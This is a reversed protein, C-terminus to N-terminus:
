EGEKTFQIVFEDISSAFQTKERIPAFAGSFQIRVAPSVGAVIVQLSSRSLDSLTETQKLVSAVVEKDASGSTVIIAIVKGQDNPLDNLLNLTRQMALPITETGAQKEQEITEIAHAVIEETAEASVINSVRDSEAIDIVLRDGDQTKESVQELATKSIEKLEPTSSNLALYFLTQEERSASRLCGTLLLLAVCVQFIKKIM